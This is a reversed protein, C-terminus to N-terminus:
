PVVRVDGTRAVFGSIHQVAIRRGTSNATNTARYAEFLTADSVAGAILPLSAAYYGSDATLTRRPRSRCDVAAGVLMSATVPSNADTRRRGPAARWAHAM